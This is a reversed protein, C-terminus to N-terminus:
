NWRPCYDGALDGTNATSVLNFAPKLDLEEDIRVAGRARANAAARRGIEVCCDTIFSKSVAWRAGGVYTDEAGALPGYLAKAFGKDSEVDDMNGRCHKMVARLAQGSIPMQAGCGLSYACQTLVTDLFQREVEALARPNAM